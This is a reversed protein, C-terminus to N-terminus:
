QQKDEKTDDSKTDQPTEKEKEKTQPAPIESLTKQVQQMTEQIAGKDEKKLSDKLATLSDQIKKKQEENLDKRERVLTETQHVVQEGQNRIEVLELQQKDKEKHIEADKKMREIDEDSLGSSAEIKISQEKNTKKDLARVHLIGNSDLDFTVEIQPTGRPAPEIGDLIFRGLSKNGESMSREGQLVHIDVQPQNESATSFVQSKKTPITTNKEILKTMVGGMTEIGLTLPTIDLLLVDKIDGQLIGGQLAAGLAVVEDPNISQNPTKNFLEKVANYVAPMRTQGGVLIVEDIESASMQADELVSKTITLAREIYPQALKELQSRTISLLLHQPGQDNSTVYPINIETEAKHSLEIKANEAAEDLRQLALPDNSLDIGSTKKYENIIYHLLEKDIDRGGLHSDGKTAKVEVTAQEDKTASGIDLISVDFTGGGLDFVVIKQNVNKEFGYAFAAATPENIIREVELGAIAGADKTAKRQADNFYAPVTIVAGTVTTGLKKEADEKIKKLIIASIEEPRLREEGLIAIVGGKPGKEIKYPISKIDKQIVDEEFDHGIFRKIGYVTQAPNTMAQRRAITGVLRDGKKSIAVVSPTTRAGEANEIIEPKGNVVRAFASNTTGLDIGIINKM